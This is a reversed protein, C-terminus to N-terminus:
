KGIAPLIGVPLAFGLVIALLGGAFTWVEAAGLSPNVGYSMLVIGGFVLVISLIFMIATVAGVAGRSSEEFLAENEQKAM